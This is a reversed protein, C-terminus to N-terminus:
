VVSQIFVIRFVSPVRHCDINGGMLITSYRFIPPSIFKPVQWPHNLEMRTHNPVKMNMFVYAANKQPPGSMNNKREMGLCIIGGFGRWVVQKNIMHAAKIWNFKLFVLAEWSNSACQARVLGM